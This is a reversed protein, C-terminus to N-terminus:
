TVGKQRSLAELVIIFLMHSLVSGQHVRVKVEFEESFSNNVRARSKADEYMAKIVNILWEQFGVM